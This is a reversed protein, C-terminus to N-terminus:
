DSRAVDPFFIEKRKQEDFYLPENPELRHGLDQIQAWIDPFVGLRKFRRANKKFDSVNNLTYLLEFLLLWGAIDFTNVALQQQLFHIAAASDGQKIMARAQAAIESTAGGPNEMAAINELSRHNAFGAQYPHTDATETLLESNTRRTLKEQIKRYSRLILFIILVTLLIGLAFITDISVPYEWPMDSSEEAPLSSHLDEHQNNTQPADNSNDIIPNTHQTKLTHMSQILVVQSALADTHQTLLTLAQAEQEAIRELQTLLQSSLQNSQKKEDAIPAEPTFDHTNSTENNKHIKRRKNSQSSSHAHITRLDPIYVVTGAPLPRYVGDPFLQPNTRVIARIFTNQTITDQPFMLRAINLINEGSMLKWTMGNGAALSHTTIDPQVTNAPVPYLDPADAKVSLATVFLIIVSALKSIRAIM